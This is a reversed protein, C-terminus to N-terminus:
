LFTSIADFSSKLFIDLQILKHCNNTLTKSLINKDGNNDDNLKDMFAEELPKNSFEQVEKRVKM